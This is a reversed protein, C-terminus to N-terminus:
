FGRRRKRMAGGGELNRWVGSVIGQPVADGEATLAEAEALNLIYEKMDAPTTPISPDTDALSLLIAIAGTVIIICLSFHFHTPTKPANIVKM